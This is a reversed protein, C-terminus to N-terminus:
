RDRNSRQLEVSVFIYATHTPASTHCVNPCLSKARQQCSGSSHVHRTRDDDIIVTSRPCIARTNHEQTPGHEGDSLVRRLIPAQNLVLSHTSYTPSRTDLLKELTAMCSPFSRKPVPHHDHIIAMVFIKTKRKLGTAETHVENM